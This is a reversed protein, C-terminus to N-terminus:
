MIRDAVTDTSIYCDFNEWVLVVLFLFDTSSTGKKKAFIIKNRRPYLDFSINM